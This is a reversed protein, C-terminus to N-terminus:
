IDNKLKTKLIKERRCSESYLYKKNYTIEAMLLGLWPPKTKMQMQKNTLLSSGMVNPHLALPQKESEKVDGSWIGVIEWSIICLDEHLFMLRTYLIKLSPLKVWYSHPLLVYCCMKTYVTNKQHFICYPSLTALWGSIHARQTHKQNWRNTQKYVVNCLWMKTFIWSKKMGKKVM